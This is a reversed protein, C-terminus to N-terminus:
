MILTENSMEHPIIQNATIFVALTTIGVFVIAGFSIDNKDCDLYSRFRYGNSYCRTEAVPHQWM